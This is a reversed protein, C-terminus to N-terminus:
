LRVVDADLEAVAEVVEIEVRKAESNGVFGCKELYGSHLDSGTEALGFHEVDVAFPVSFELDGDAVPKVDFHPRLDVGAVVACCYESTRYHSAFAGSEISCAAHETRSPM